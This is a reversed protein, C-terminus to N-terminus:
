PLSGIGSVLKTLNPVLIFTNQRGHKLPLLSYGCKWQGTRACLYYWVCSSSSRSHSTVCGKTLHLVLSLLYDPLLSKSVNLFPTTHHIWCCSFCASSYAIIFVAARNQQVSVWFNLTTNATFIWKYWHQYAHKNAKENAYPLELVNYFSVLIGIDVVLHM